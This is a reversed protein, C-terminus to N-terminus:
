SSAPWIKTFSHTRLTAEVAPDFVTALCYDTHQRIAYGSPRRDSSGCWDPKGAKKTSCVGHVIKEWQTPPAQWISIIHGATPQPPQNPITIHNAKALQKIRTRLTKILETLKLDPTHNNISFESGRYGNFSDLVHPPRRWGPGLGGLRSALDLLHGILDQFPANCDVIIRWEEHVIKAPINAYGNQPANSNITRGVPQLYSPMVLQAPCGLGGFIKDTLTQAPNPALVSLALRHFYGRLNARLVQPSWRYEGTQEKKKDHNQVCPKMGKLTLSWQGQPARESLRGFGSATGRGIGQQILMAKIQTELWNKEDKTPPIALQVQLVFKDPSTSYPNPAAQWQVGLKNSKQDFLQWDQQAHLPYPKLEKLWITEFRIKRPQWGSRDLQLLTQWFTQEDDPLTAWQHNLWSLLAGRLSSGPIVPVGGLQAPLIGGEPFSGGGVQIPTRIQLSNLTVTANKAPCPAITGNWANTIDRNHNNRIIHSTQPTWGRNKEPEVTYWLPLYEPLPLM